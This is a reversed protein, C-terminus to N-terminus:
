VNPCCHTSIDVEQYREDENCQEKEAVAISLEAIIRAALEQAYQEIEHKQPLPSLRGNIIDDIRKCLQPLFAEELEFCSGITLLTRQKVKGMIRESTVIRFTSYPTGDAAKKTTTKRIFM